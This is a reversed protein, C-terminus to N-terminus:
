YLTVSLKISTIQPSDMNKSAQAASVTTSTLSFWRSKNMTCFCVIHYPSRKTNDKLWMLIVHISCSYNYNVMSMTQKHQTGGPRTTLCNNQHIKLRSNYKEPSCTLVHVHTDQLCTHTEEISTHIQPKVYTDELFCCCCPCFIYSILFIFYNESRECYLSIVADM